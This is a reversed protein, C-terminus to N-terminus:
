FEVNILQAEQSLRLLSATISVTPAATTAGGNNAHMGCGILALSVLPGLVISPVFWHLSRSYLAKTM